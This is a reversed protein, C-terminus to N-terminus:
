QMGATEGEPAETDSDARFLPERPTGKKIEKGSLSADLRMQELRENGHQLILKQQDPSYLFELLRGTFQHWNHREREQALRGGGALRELAATQRWLIVLVGLVVLCGAFLAYDTM